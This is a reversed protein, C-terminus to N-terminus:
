RWGSNRWEWICMSRTHLKSEYPDWKTIMKLGCVCVICDFLKQQKNREVLNVLVKFTGHLPNPLLNITKKRSFHKTKIAESFSKRSIKCAPDKHLKRQIWCLSRRIMMMKILLDLRIRSIRHDWANGDRLLLSYLIIICSIESKM